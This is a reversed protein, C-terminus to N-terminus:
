KSYERKLATFLARMPGGIRLATTIEDGFEASAHKELVALINKQLPEANAAGLAEWRFVTSPHVGVVAAFTTLSFGLTDRLKKVGYKTM